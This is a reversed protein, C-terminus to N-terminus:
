TRLLSVFGLIVGVAVGTAIGMLLRKVDRAMLELTEVRGILGSDGNSGYLAREHKLLGANIANMEQGKSGGM